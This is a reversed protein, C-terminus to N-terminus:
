LIFNSFDNVYSNFTTGPYVWAGYELDSLDIPIVRIHVNGGPGGGLLDLLEEPLGLGSVGSLAAGLMNMNPGEIMGELIPVIREQAHFRLGNGCGCITPVDEPIFGCEYCIGSVGGPLFVHDDPHEDPMEKLAELAMSPEPFILPIADLLDTWPVPLVTTM